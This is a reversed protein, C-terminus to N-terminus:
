YRNRIKDLTFNMPYYNRDIYDRREFINRGKKVIFIVVVTVEAGKIGEPQNNSVEIM